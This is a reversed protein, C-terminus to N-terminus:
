AVHYQLAHLATLSLNANLGCWDVGNSLMHALSLVLCDTELGRCGPQAAMPKENCCFGGHKAGYNRLYGGSIGLLCLVPCISGVICRAGTKLSLRLQVDKV